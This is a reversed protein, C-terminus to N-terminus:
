ENIEAVASARIWGIQYNVDDSKYVILVWDQTQIPM